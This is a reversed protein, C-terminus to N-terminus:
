TSKRSLASTMGLENKCSDDIMEPNIKKEAETVEAVEFVSDRETACLFLNKVDTPIPDGYRQTPARQRKSTRAEQVPPQQVEDM